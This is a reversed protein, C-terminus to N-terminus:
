DRISRCCDLLVPQLSRNDLKTVSWLEQLVFLQLTHRADNRFITTDGMASYYLLQYIHVYIEFLLVHNNLNGKGDVFAPLELTTTVATVNEQGAQSSAASQVEARAEIIERKM